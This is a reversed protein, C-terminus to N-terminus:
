SPYSGSRQLLYIRVNYPLRSDIENKMFGRLHLDIRRWSTSGIPKEVTTLINSHSNTRAFVNEYVLLRAYTHKASYNKTRFSELSLERTVVCIRIPQISNIWRSWIRQLIGTKYFRALWVQVVHILHIPNRCTFDTCGPVPLKMRRDEIMM